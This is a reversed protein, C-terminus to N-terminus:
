SWHHNIYSQRYSQIYGLFYATRSKNHQPTALYYGIDGVNKLRIESASPSCVYTAGTGISCNIIHTFPTYSDVLFLHHLWLMDFCFLTCIVIHSRSYILIMGFLNWHPLRTFIYAIPSFQKVLNMGNPPTFWNFMVTIDCLSLIADWIMQSNLHKNLSGAFVFLLFMLAGMANSARQSVVLLAYLTKMDHRWWLIRSISKQLFFPVAHGPSPSVVFRKYLLHREKEDILYNQDLLSM